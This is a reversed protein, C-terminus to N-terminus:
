SAASEALAMSEVLRAFRGGRALLAAPAGFEAVEGQDMVLIRDSDMVTNLRHAITIVTCGRFERRVIAQIAADTQSDTNATAEDLVLIRRRWLLARCLCVLQRQGMSFNRGGDEVWKDLGTGAIWPAQQQQQQGRDDGDAVSGGSPTSVLDEIQAARIAAWVQEDTHEGMPDLNDRITGVFLVPVQPVVSIQARLDRLGITSIDVGDVLIQGGSPEVLRLLAQVLSSKGAGTCGVVGIKECARTSFSVGRLVDDQDDRYRMRYDRFEVAGRSPWEAPPRTEAVQHPAERPLGETYAFFKALASLFMDTAASSYYFNGLAGIAKAGLDVAIHADSPSVPRGRVHKLWMMWAAIGLTVLEGGLRSVYTSLGSVASKIRVWKAHAVGARALRDIFVDTRGHIRVVENGDVVSYMIDMKEQMAAIGSRNISNAVAGVRRNLLMLAYALLGIPIVALSLIQLVSFLAYGASTMKLVRAYVELPLFHSIGARDSFLMTELTHYPLREFVPLPTHLLTDILIHQMRLSVRRNWLVSQLWGGASYLMARAVLVSVGVVLYRRATDPDLHGSNGALLRIRTRALYYGSHAVALQTAICAGIAVYGSLAAFKLYTSATVPPVNIEPAVDLERASDAAGKRAPGSEAAAQPPRCKAIRKLVASTRTSIAARGEAVEVVRDSLPVVYDAHTVLIRTKKGLVGGKDLVHEIIHRAVEVDVASLVDDLIYIDADAYIARALALRVNQGGSLNVGKPGIKTMDGAPLMGIDADLACAEIAQRYRAEDYDGGFLVNDRFTAGMIWPRQSVYGIAGHVCGTGAVLPVEGCIASLLSSKGSGIRGVVTVFEGRAVTLTLPQLAFKGAGWSFVCGDMEIAVPGAAREAGIFQASQCRALSRFLRDALQLNAFSTPLGSLSKSFLMLSRMSRLIVEVEIYAIQGGVSVYSLLMLASCIEPLAAELIYVATDLLRVALPPRESDRDFSEGHMFLSEWAYYKIARITSVMAVFSTRLEPRRAMRKTKARGQLVCVLHRAAVSAAGVGVPILARWGVAAVVVYVNPAQSLLDVVVCMIDSMAFRFRYIGSWVGEHIEGAFTGSTSKRTYLDAARAAVTDQIRDAAHKQWADVSAQATTALGLVVWLVLLWVGDAAAGTGHAFTAFARALVLHRIHVVSKTAVDATMLGALQAFRQRVVARFVCLRQAPDIHLNRVMGFAERGEEATCRCNSGDVSERKAVALIADVMLVERALANLWRTTATPLLRWLMALFVGGDVVLAARSHAAYPELAM